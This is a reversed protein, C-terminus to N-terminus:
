RFDAFVGDTSDQAFSAKAPLLRATPTFCSLRETLPLAALDDDGIRIRRGFFASRSRRDFPRFAPATQRSAPHPPVKDSEGKDLAWNATLRAAQDGAERTYVFHSPWTTSM